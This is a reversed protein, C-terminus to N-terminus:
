LMDEETPRIKVKSKPKTYTYSITYNARKPFLERKKHGYCIELGQKEFFIEEGLWTNYGM